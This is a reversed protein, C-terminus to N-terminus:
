WCGSWEERLYEKCPPAAPAPRQHHPSQKMKYLTKQKKEGELPESLEVWEEVYISWGEKRGRPSVEGPAEATSIGKHAVEGDIGMPHEKLIGSHTLGKGKLNLYVRDGPKAENKFAEIQHHRSHGTLRRGCDEYHKETAGFICAIPKDGETWQKHNKRAVPPTSGCAIQWASQNTMTM